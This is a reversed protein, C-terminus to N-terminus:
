VKVSNTTFKGRESVYDQSQAAMEDLLISFAQVQSHCTFGNQSKYPTGDSNVYLLITVPLTFVYVNDLNSAAPIIQVDTQM